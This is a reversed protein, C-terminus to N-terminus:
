SESSITRLPRTAYLPDTADDTHILLQSQQFSDRSALLRRRGATSTSRARTYGAVIEASADALGADAFLAAVLRKKRRRSKLSIGFREYMRVLLSAPVALKLHVYVARREEYIAKRRRVLKPSDVDAGSRHIAHRMAVISTFPWAAARAALPTSVRTWLEVIDRKLAAVVQLRKRPARLRALKGRAAATIRVAGIRRRSLAALVSRGRQELKSDGYRRYWRQLRVASAICRRCRARLQRSAGLRHRLAISAKIAITVLYAFAEEQARAAEKPELRESGRRRM